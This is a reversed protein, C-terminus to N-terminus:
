RVAVADIEVLAEDDVLAEVIVLTSAPRAGELRRDRVARFGAVHDRDVLYICIRALQQLGSGAATLARELNDFVVETQREISGAGVIDGGPEWAIQGSVFVFDGATTVQSWVAGSPALGDAEVPTVEAV